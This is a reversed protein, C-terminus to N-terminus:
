YTGITRSFNNKLNVFFKGLFWPMILNDVSYVFIRFFRRFDALNCGLTPIKINCCLSLQLSGPAFIFFSHLKPRIFLLLSYDGRNVNSEIKFKQTCCRTQFCGTWFQAYKKEDFIYNESTYQFFFFFLFISGVKGKWTDKGLLVGQTWLINLLNNFLM